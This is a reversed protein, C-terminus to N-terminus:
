FASASCFAEYDILEHIEPEDGCLPCNPDRRIKLERFAMHLADFTLLRGVLPEGKGLLIKIVEIAQVVGIIGPLVGLVGAEQCSPAMGPPPPEPYLCRYCPGKGPWFVTAQGEFRFISGHVNPIGKMVCADNVLYRTPFNDSGDVVVDYGDIIDLINESTIWTRYPVVEIDPNLAELRRKASEVKPKGVWEEDHLIQRQLNSRDVVDADVIGLRGVGAAALYYATPSGLGGAGILLVKADLLRLQGEEGVEPLILHRSYREMQDAKLSRKEELSYGHRVWAGVGGALSYVNRYGMQALAAGALASRVGAACYLYIPRNRDPCINEIKLELLGRPITLAGEIIGQEFENPERVDILVVEGNRAADLVAQLEAPGVERIAQKARDIVDQVTTAM